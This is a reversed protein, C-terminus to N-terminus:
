LDDVDIYDISYNKACQLDSDSFDGPKGSADGIMVMESKQIENLPPYKIFLKDIMGTNPKRDPNDKKCSPCYEYDVVVSTNKGYRELHEKLAYSIFAIKIAVYEEKSTSNTEIGGQNSIIFVCCGVGMNQRAQAWDSLADWTKQKPIFDLIDKPFPHGTKTEILTSDLDIFVIKKNKDIM